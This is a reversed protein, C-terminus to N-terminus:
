SSVLKQREATVSTSALSRMFRRLSASASEGLGRSVSEVLADWDSAPSAAMELDM